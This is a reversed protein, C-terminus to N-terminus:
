ALHHPLEKTPAGIFQANALPEAPATGCLAVVLLVDYCSAVRVRSRAVMM